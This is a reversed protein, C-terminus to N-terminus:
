LSLRLRYLVLSPNDILEESNISMWTKTQYLQGHLATDNPAAGVNNLLKM